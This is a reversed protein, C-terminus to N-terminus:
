DEQFEKLSIQKKGKTFEDLPAVRIASCDNSSFFDRLESSSMDTRRVLAQSRDKDNLEIDLDFQIVALKLVKYTYTDSPIQTLLLSPM